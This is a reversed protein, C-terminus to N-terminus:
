VVDGSSGVSALPVARVRTLIIQDGHLEVRLLDGHNLGPVLRGLSVRGRNKEVRVLQDPKNSM